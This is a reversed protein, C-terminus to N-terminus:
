RSPRTTSWNFEMMKPGATSAPTPDAFSGAARRSNHHTGYILGFLIIGIRATFYFMRMDRARMASFSPRLVFTGVLVVALAVMVVIFL